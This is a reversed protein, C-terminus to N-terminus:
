GGLIVFVGGVGRLTPPSPPDGPRLASPHVPALDIVGVVATVLALALTILYPWTLLGEFRILDRFWILVAVEVAAFVWLYVLVSQVSAWRWDRTAVWAMFANGLCWGGMTMAMFATVRWPFEDASWKPAVFFVLGLVAFALGSARTLLRSRESLSATTKM